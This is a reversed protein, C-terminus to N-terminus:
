ADSSEVPEVGVSQDAAAEATVTEDAAANEGVGEGESASAADEAAPVAELQPITDGQLLAAITDITHELEPILSENTVLHDRFRKADFNLAATVVVGLSEQAAAIFSTLNAKFRRRVPWSAQTTPDIV